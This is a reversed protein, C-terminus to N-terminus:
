LNESDANVASANHEVDPVVVTETRTSALYKAYSKGLFKIEYGERTVSVDASSLAEQLRDLRFEGDKNFYERM